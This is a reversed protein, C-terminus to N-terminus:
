LMAIEMSLAKGWSSPIPCWLCSHGPVALGWFPCSSSLPCSTCIVPCSTQESKRAGEEPAGEATSTDAGEELGLGTFPCPQQHWRHTVTHATDVFMEVQTLWLWPSVGFGQHSLALLPAAPLICPARTQLTKASGRGWKLGAEGPSTGMLEGQGATREWRWQAQSTSFPLRLQRAKRAWVWQCTGNGVKDGVRLGGGQQLMPVRLPQQRIQAQGSCPWRHGGLPHWDTYAAM